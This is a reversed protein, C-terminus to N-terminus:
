IVSFTAQQTGSTYPNDAAQSAKLVVTGRGTLTVTSGSIKAPGSVVSYKIAGLSNSTASVQFPATGYTQNAVSFRITPTAAAVVFSANKTGATYNVTAAQSAKLLVTGAGTITVTSGSITAPGSLVSYTIPGPSTSTASVQFPAVGYTQKAVTFTISPVGKTVSFTATKTGSTYANSAAQTANIVVTGIATITVTSGSIKAPGSVVSYSFAGSSNSTAAVTFPAVGYTKNSIQFNITPAAPSITFTASQTGASYGGAAAQSAKLVVTGAGTMTVSSGSITAPGSVVTYTIAGSSNSQAAVTFPTTSYTKNSVSFTITPAVSSINYSGIVVPSDV